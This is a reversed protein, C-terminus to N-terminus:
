SSTFDSRLTKGNAGFLGEKGQSGLKGLSCLQQLHRVLAAAHEMMEARGCGDSGERNERGGWLRNMRNGRGELAQKPTDDEWHLCVRSDSRSRM